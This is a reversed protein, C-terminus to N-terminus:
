VPLKQNWRSASAQFPSEQIDDACSLFAQAAQELLFPYPLHHVFRLGNAETDALYAEPNLIHLYLFFLVDVPPIITEEGSGTVSAFTANSSRPMTWSLYLKYRELTITPDKLIFLKCHDFIRCMNVYLHMEEEWAVGFDVRLTGDLLVQKMTTALDGTFLDEKDVGNLTRLPLALLQAPVRCSYIVSKEGPANQKDGWREFWFVRLSKLGGIVDFTRYSLNYSLPNAMLNLCEINQSLPSGALAKLAQSDIGNSVLEVSTLSKSKLLGDPITKLDCRWLRISKLHPLKELNKLDGLPNASLSLTDLSRLKIVAPPVTTLRCNDLSLNRLEPMHLLADLYDPGHVGTNSSLDLKRLKPISSLIAPVRAMRSDSLTVATLNPSSHLGVKDNRTFSLGPNSSLDITELTESLCIGKPIVALKCDRLSLQKLHKLHPIVGCAETPAGESAHKIPNSSMDLSTLCPLSRLAGPIDPLLNNSLTLASLSEWSKLCESKVVKIKNRSIDLKKVIHVNSFTPFALRQEGALCLSRRSEPIKYLGKDDVEGGLLTPKTCKVSDEFGNSVPSLPSGSANRSDGDVSLRREPWRGGGGGAGGGAAAPAEDIEAVGKGVSKPARAPVSGLGVKPPAQDKNCCGGM